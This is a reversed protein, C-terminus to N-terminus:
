RRMARMAKELGKHGKPAPYRVHQGVVEEAIKTMMPRDKAEDSHEKARGGKARMMAAPAARRMMQNQMTPAPMPMRAPAGRGQMQQMVRGILQTMGGNRYGMRKAKGGRAWRSATREGTNAEDVYDDIQKQRGGIHREGKQEIPASRFVERLAGPIAKISETLTYGSKRRPLRVDGGDAKNMKKLTKALNARRRMTPNKSHEAKALKKAPIKEGEPVGLARHLAGPKKIAGAIWGGKAKKMTRGGSKYGPLLSSHAGADDQWKAYARKRRVMASGQDGITDTKMRPKDERVFGGNAFGKRRVYPSVNTYAGTSGTFGMSTPFKFGASPGYGTPKFGKM